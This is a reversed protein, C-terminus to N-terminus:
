GHKAVKFRRNAKLDSAIDTWTKMLSGSSATWPKADNVAILLTIDDICGFSKRTSGAYAGPEEYLVDLTDDETPHQSNSNLQSELKIYLATTDMRVGVHVMKLIAEEVVAAKEHFAGFLGRTGGDQSANMTSVKFLRIAEQVNESTVQIKLHMKALSESIRVLAELQRVTIPIARAKEDQRVTDRVQVYFDQLAQTADMSLRPAIRQRCYTIFRKM